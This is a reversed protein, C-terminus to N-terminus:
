ILCNMVKPNKLVMKCAHKSTRKKNTNNLSNISYIGFFNVYKRKLILIRKEASAM